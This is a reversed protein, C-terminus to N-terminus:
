VRLSKTLSGLSKPRDWRAKACFKDCFTTRVADTEGHSIKKVCLWNLEM